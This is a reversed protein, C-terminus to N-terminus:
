AIRTYSLWSGTKVTINGTSNQLRMAVATNGTHYFWGTIRLTRADTGTSAYTTSVDDSATKTAANLASVSTTQIETVYQASGSSFLVAPAVTMAGDPVLTVLAEFRYANNALATFQLSGINAPTASSVNADVSQYVFNEVGLGTGALLTTINANAATVAGTATLNGGTINGSVSVSSGLFDTATVNGTSSFIGQSLVNGGTVNGTASMGGSGASVAGLAIVNGGTVNGTATMQGTTVVNGGTVNGTSTMTGPTSINGSTINGVATISSSSYVTGQVALLHEPAANGIGVNGNSLLTMKVSAAAGSTSTLFQLNANGSVGNAISQVITTNRAGPVSDSTYWALQGLVTGDSVTIDTDDFRIQPTGASADRALLINGTATVDGANLAGATALNGGIVNGTGTIAGTVALASSSFVAVNGTGAVGVTVNGSPVSVKVNSTGSFIQNTSLNGFSASGVVTLDGTIIAADTDLTISDSSNVSVIAYDGSVRKITAM